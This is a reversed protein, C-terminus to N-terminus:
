YPLFTTLIANGDSYKKLVEGLVFQYGGAM